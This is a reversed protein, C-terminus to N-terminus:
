FERGFSLFFQWQPRPPELASGRRWVLGRAATGRFTGVPSAWRLGTGPSWYVDPDLAFSSAGGMAADIFIFPQLRYPLIDGARLELGNYIETLFGSADDPLRKRGVGRLDADGGLFFRATPPLESLASAREISAVTGASGRTALVALPPEYGGLNWLTQGSLRLVHATVESHAGAFRHSTELQATWGRRPDQRYYEYLHSAVRTRTVFQFWSAGRPGMGRFTDFYDLAPGGRVELNLGGADRTWAPSLSVESHAAEYQVEDERRIFAAPSLYLRDGSTLFLNLLADLSQERRSAALTAELSSARRGIRSHRLRARALVLGETDAGVGISIRRPPAEIVRQEVRLGATSCTVDYHATAFLADEKLRASSLSLLRTDFPDGPEFAEYRNLVASDISLGAPPEVEGMHLPPGPEVDVRVEGTRADAAVTAKACPYGRNALAILVEQKVRDLADPTLLRGVVQRLKGLDFVGDLGRGVLSAVVTARGADVVLQDRDTSFSPFHRGRTQLFSTLFLRAQPLSVRKWGDSDPDGCVLRKETESLGPDPGTFRVRPCLEQGAATSALALIVALLFNM